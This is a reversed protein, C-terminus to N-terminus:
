TTDGEKKIEVMEEKRKVGNEDANKQLEEMLDDPERSQCVVKFSDINHLYASEVQFTSNGSEDKLYISELATKFKQEDVVDTKPIWHIAFDGLTLM